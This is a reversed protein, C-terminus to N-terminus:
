PNSSRKLRCGEEAFIMLLTREKGRREAITPVLDQVTAGTGGHAVVVDNENLYMRGRERLRGAEGSTIGKGNFSDPRTHQIFTESEGIDIKDRM